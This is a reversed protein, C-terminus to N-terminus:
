RVYDIKKKPATPLPKYLEINRKRPTNSTDVHSIFFNDKKSFMIGTVVEGDEDTINSLPKVEIYKLETGGDSIFHNYNLLENNVGSFPRDFYVTVAHIYPTFIKLKLSNPIKLTKM